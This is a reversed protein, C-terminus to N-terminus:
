GVGPGSSPRVTAALRGRRSQGRGLGARQPQPRKPQPWPQSPAPWPRGGHWRIHTRASQPGETARRTLLSVTGLASPHKPNSSRLAVNACSIHHVQSQWSAGRVQAASEQHRHGKLQAPVIGAGNVLTQTTSGTGRSTANDVHKRRQTFGRPQVCRSYLV